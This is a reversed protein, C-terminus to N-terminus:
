DPYAIEMRLNFEDKPPKLPISRLKGTLGSASIALVLADLVDDRALENRKFNSLSYEYIENSEYCIKDLVSLRESLGINTRKSSRMYQKRALAWFCIEPHSERTHRRAKLNNRLFIDVERIKPTINWAEITIKKGTKKHNIECAEQYSSAYVAERCPAPFVSSARKGLNRRAEIDCSRSGSDSLGIPIDILLISAASHQAHVAKIDSFIGVDWRKNDIIAVTFWGKKCGDVGVYKM